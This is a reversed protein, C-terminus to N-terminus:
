LRPKFWCAPRRGLEFDKAVLCSNQAAQEEAQLSSIGAPVKKGPIINLNFAVPCLAAQFGTDVRCQIEPHSDNTSEVETLNPTDFQPVTRSSLAAMTEGLSQVAAAIRYCLNQESAKQWVQDCNKKVFPSVSQRFSTNLALDQFWLKRACVQSAFYDSQGENAAWAGSLPSRRQAFSFGGLHHGLEHCLILTFGDPSLEPRRALGGSIVVKWSGFSQSAAANLRTSKWDGNIVLRGGHFKVVEEFQSQVNQVIQQFQQENMNAPGQKLNKYVIAIESMFTAQAFGSILVSALIFLLRFSKM